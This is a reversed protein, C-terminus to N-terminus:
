KFVLERLSPKENLEEIKNRIMDDNKNRKTMSKEFLKEIEKDMKLMVKIDYDDIGELHVYTTANDQGIKPKKGEIADNADIGLKELEEVLVKNEKGKNDIVKQLGKKQTELHDM